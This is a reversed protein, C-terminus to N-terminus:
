TVSLRKIMLISGTKKVHVWTLLGGSTCSPASSSHRSSASLGVSWWTPLLPARHHTPLCGAPATTLAIAGYPLVVAIVIRRLDFLPKYQTSVLAVSRCKPMGIRPRLSVASVAKRLVRRLQQIVCWVMMQQLKDQVPSACARSRRLPRRARGVV